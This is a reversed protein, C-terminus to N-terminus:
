EAATTTPEEQITYDGNCWGEQWNVDHARPSSYLKAHEKVDDWNMNNQAWDRIEYNDEEFLPVTDEELSRKVDGDFEEAYNKARDWAIVSVPVSWSEGNPMKVIYLKDYVSTTEM